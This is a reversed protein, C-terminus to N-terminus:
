EHNWSDVAQWRARESGDDHWRESGRRLNEYARNTRKWVEDRWVQDGTAFPKRSICSYSVYFEEQDEQYQVDCTVLSRKWKRLHLCPVEGPVDDPYDFLEATDRCWYWKNTCDYLAGQKWWWKNVLPPLYKPHVFSPWYVRLQKDPAVQGIFRSWRKEDYGTYSSDRAAVEFLPDALVLENIAANNRYITCPGWVGERRHSVIDSAALVEDRLLFKRLNGWILDLDCHGWFDFGNLLHGFLLGYAPKIDCLKYPFHLTAPFGLTKRFLAAIDTLSSKILAVNPYSVDPLKCDTLVIWHISSNYKCSQLYAPFWVPWSGFFPVIFAIKRAAGSVEPSPLPHSPSPSKV